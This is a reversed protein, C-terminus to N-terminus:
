APLSVIFKAGMGPEAEARISGGHREAIKKCLSLGLGTGEYKDKTNLRAFTQFIKKADKPSFGIGNDRVVIEFHKKIKGERDESADGDVLSSSISIVPAEEVRAFKLSNAILNYFLQHLLVPSGQVTPLESWEILAHKQAIVVELDAEINKILQTLSVPESTFSSASLSSYALVGDIMNYMRYSAAEIKDLYSNAKQSSNDGLEDKLRSHFTIVKRVPEKLDHSAVHAFQQLDENSRQLERTREAVLQELRQKETKQDHIDTIAGIWKLLRGEADRVPQATSLHWRYDGEKNQLRLEYRFSKGSRFAEAYAAASIELDEPHIMYAWADFPNTIGSYKEWQQSFYENNGKEDAVWILQPLTEALTRFRSESEEIKKRALVSHTVDSGISVVGVIEGSSNRLPQYVFDFYIFHAQGNRTYQVPFENGVYPEGTDLIQNLLPEQTDRLEPSVDFFPKNLVEEQTKGWLELAKANAVQVEFNNSGYVVISTPAQYFISQLYAESKRISERAIVQEHVDTNTGIWNLISGDDSLVPVGRTLFWRYEGSASRLPFTMEFPKPTKWAKQMFAVVRGIHDPHHVKEWGWGQMDELTTGTYDYWRQNYWHIWGSSDAMWALNQINNSFNRFQEESKLLEQERKKEESTDRVEIVTGMPKGEVVIPSATFSVPFFEGKKNVFVEEGKMRKMTPLAQDIPCEELPFATGDPHSHHIYYHLQRGKLEQLTFGTMREAAENMYVCYQKEDMLFLAMDTNETVSELLTKQYALAAEAEKQATIDITTTLVMSLEGDNDFVPASKSIIWFSKEGTRPVFEAVVESPNGTTFTLAASSEELPLREGRENKVEFQEDLRTRLKFLNQEALVEEKTSYGLQIAGRDNLYLIKGNRDFHYIASPVNKFTLELQEKIIRLAEEAARQETVDTHVGVWEDITGGSNFLPIARINYTGWSGDKRKVRHEFVFTRKEKVAENWADITPQADDPHVAHSWGYDRYEEFSQGTLQSWGPQEGQMRGYADNTWLVGQVAHVAAEFRQESKLLAAHAEKYKTIDICAGTMYSPKGEADLYTQGKDHLWHLSGDPWLVRFELDFDSADRACLVCADIVAQRDDPFVRGIFVELNQVTEGPALGFLRDLNSDWSLENTQINWRFTGTHSATLAADLRETREKLTNETEKADAVSKVKDTTDIITVLVGEITGLENIVPSCSYTWYADGSKGGRYVPMLQDEHWTPNGTTMVQIRQSELLHWIEPLAEKFPKGLNSTFEEDPSLGARYRDNYFCIGEKGWFLLMPFRSKLLTNLIIQLSAPWYTRDGVATQSWDHESILTAMERIGADLNNNFDLHDRRNSINTM